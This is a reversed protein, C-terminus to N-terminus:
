RPCLFSARRAMNRFMQRQRRVPYVVNDGFLVPPLGIFLVECSAARRAISSFGAIDRREIRYSTVEGGKEMWPPIAPRIVKTLDICPELREGGDAADCNEHQFQIVLRPKFFTFQEEAHSQERVM